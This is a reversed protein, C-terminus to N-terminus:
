YDNMISDNLKKQNRILSHFGQDLGRKRRIQKLMESAQKIHKREKFQRHHEKNLSKVLESMDYRETVKINKPDFYNSFDYKKSSRKKYIQSLQQKIRNFDIM